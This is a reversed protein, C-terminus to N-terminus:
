LSNPVVSSRAGSRRRLCGRTRIGDSPSASQVPDISPSPKETVKASRTGVSMRPRLGNRTRVAAVIGIPSIKSRTNPISM